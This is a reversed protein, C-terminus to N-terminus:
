ASLLAEPHRIVVRQRRKLLHGDREWRKLQRSVTFLSVDALAALDHNGIEVEVGGPLVRGSTAGLTTITRALRQEATRSLLAVHRDGFEQVYRLAVHLANQALRPCTAAVSKIAAADWLYLATEGISVATGMYNVEGPVLSALGFCEGPGLLRLLVDRGDTTTRAFRVRGTQVLFMTDALEGQRCLVTRPLFQRSAAAAMVLSSDREPLGALLSPPSVAAQKPIKMVTAPRPYTPVNDILVPLVALVVGFLECLGGDDKGGSSSSKWGGASMIM